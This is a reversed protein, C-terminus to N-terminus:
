LATELKSGRPEVPANVNAGQAIKRKRARLLITEATLLVFTVAYSGWIYAGYGGMRIFESLSNWHM